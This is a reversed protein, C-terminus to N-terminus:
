SFTRTVTTEAKNSRGGRVLVLYCASSRNATVRLGCLRSIPYHRSHTIFCVSGRMTASPRTRRYGHSTSNLIFQAKSDLPPRVGVTTGPTNAQAHLAQVALAGLAFSM